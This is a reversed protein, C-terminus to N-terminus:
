PVKTPSSAEYTAQVFHQKHQSTCKAFTINKNTFLPRSVVTSSTSSIVPPMRDYGHGNNRKEVTAVHLTVTIHHLQFQNVIAGIKLFVTQRNNPMYRYTSYTDNVLMSIYIYIYIYIHTHTHLPKTITPTKKTEAESKELRIFLLFTM